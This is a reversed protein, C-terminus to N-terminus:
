RHQYPIVFIVRRLGHAIAHDLAFALLGADKRRRDAGYAFCGLRTHRPRGRSCSTRRVRKIRTPMSASLYADASRLGPSPSALGRSASRDNPQGPFHSGTTLSPTSITRMWLARVHAFFAFQFMAREKKLVLKPPLLQEPLTVEYQWEERLPPLGVGKLRDSLATREGGESGNALGAHHGAIGYALLMGTHKYREVALMAGRTAHDVRIADGAVRRQFDDSYKGLDHLLGAVEAMGGAGFLSAKDSAIAAVNQLHEALAQWDSRDPRQTSHAFFAM